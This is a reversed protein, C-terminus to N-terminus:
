PTQSAIDPKLVQRTLTNGQAPPFPHQKGAPRARACHRDQAKERWQLERKHNHESHELFLGSGRPTHNLSLDLGASRSPSPCSCCGGPISNFVDRQKIMPDPHTLFDQNKKLPPIQPVTRNSESCVEAVPPYEKVCTHRPFVPLM